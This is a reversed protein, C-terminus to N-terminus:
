RGDGGTLRARAVDPHATVRMVGFQHGLVIAQEDAGVVIAAAVLADGVLPAVTAAIIVLVSAGRGVTGHLGACRATVDNNVQWLGLVPAGALAPIGRSVLCNTLAPLLDRVSSAFDVPINTLVPHPSCRAARSCNTWPVPNPRM